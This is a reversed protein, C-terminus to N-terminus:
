GDMYCPEEGGYKGVLEAAQIEQAIWYGVGIWGVKESDTLEDFKRRVYKSDQCLQAFEFQYHARRAIQEATM